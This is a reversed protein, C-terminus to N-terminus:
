KHNNETIFEVFRQYEFVLFVYEFVSWGHCYGYTAFTLAMRPIEIESYLSHNTSCFQNFKIRKTPRGEKATPFRVLCTCFERRFWDWKALVSNRLEYCSTRKKADSIIRWNTNNVKTMEKHTSIYQGHM